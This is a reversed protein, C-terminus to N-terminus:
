SGRAKVFNERAEPIRRLGLLAKGKWYYYEAYM